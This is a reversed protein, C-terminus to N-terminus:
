LRKALILIVVILVIIGLGGFPAYGWHASYPYGPYSGAFMLVFVILLILGLSSM